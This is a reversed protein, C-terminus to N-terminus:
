IKFVCEIFRNFLYFAAFISFFEIFFIPNIIAHMRNLANNSNQNVVM